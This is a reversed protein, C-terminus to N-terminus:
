SSQFVCNLSTRGCGRALGRKLVGNIAQGDVFPVAEGATRVFWRRTPGRRDHHLYNALAAGVDRPLPLCDFVLGKGRILIEGARWDVDDM